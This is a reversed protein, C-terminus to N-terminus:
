PLLGLSAARRVAPGIVEWAALSMGSKIANCTACSAAANSKTYGQTSDKRDICMDRGSRECYQCPSTFMMQLFGRDFDCNPDKRRYRKLRDHWKGTHSQHRLNHCRACRARLIRYVKDGSRITGVYANDETVKVGCDRCKKM